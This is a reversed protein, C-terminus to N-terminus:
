WFQYRKYNCQLDSAWWQSIRHASRPWYQRPSSTTIVYASPLHQSPESEKGMATAIGSRISNQAVIRASEHAGSDVLKKMFDFYRFYESCIPDSLNVFLYPLWGCLKTFTVDDVSPQNTTSMRNAAFALGATIVSQTFGTGYRSALPPNFLYTKLHIGMKVMDRGIILAIASGLSHGALWIDSVEHNEIINQVARLGIHIPSCDQLRDVAVRANLKLDRSISGLKMITGRFAIVYKPPNQNHSSSTTSQYIAGFISPDESDVLTKILCFHFSEWWPPALADPGQRNKQRDRELISVGKVLSAVISRRHSENSWDFNTTLYLPGSQSFTEKKRTRKPPWMYIMLVFSCAFHIGRYGILQLCVIIYRM